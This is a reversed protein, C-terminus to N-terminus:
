MARPATNGFQRTGAPAVKGPAFPSPAQLPHERGRRRESHQSPALTCAASGSARVGRGRGGAARPREQLRQKQLVLESIHDCSSTVNSSCIATIVSFYTRTSFQAMRFSLDGILGFSGQGAWAWHPRPM